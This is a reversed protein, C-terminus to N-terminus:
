FQGPGPPTSGNSRAASGSSGRGPSNTASSRASARARARCKAVAERLTKVTEDVAEKSALAIQFTQVEASSFATKRRLKDEEARGSSSPDPSDEGDILHRPKAITILVTNGLGATVFPKSPTDEIALLPHMLVLDKTGFGVKNKLVLYDDWEVAITVDFKGMKGQCIRQKNRNEKPLDIEGKAVSAKAFAFEKKLTTQIQQRAVIREIIPPPPERRPAIPPVHIVKKREELTQTFPLLQVQPVVPLRPARPQSHSPAPPPLTAPPPPVPETPRLTSTSADPPLTGGNMSHISVEAHSQAPSDSISASAEFGGGVVVPDLIVSKPNPMRAGSTDGEHVSRDMPTGSGSGMQVINQYKSSKADAAVLWGPKRETSQSLISHRDRRLSSEQKVLSATAEALATVPPVPILQAMQVTTESLGLPYKGAGCSVFLTPVNTPFGSVGDASPLTWVADDPEIVIPVEALGCSPGRLLGSSSSSDSSGEKSDTLRSSQGNPAEEPPPPAAPSAEAAADNLGQLLSRDAATPTDGGDRGVAVRSTSRTTSGSADLREESRTRHQHSLPSEDEPPPPTPTPQHEDQPPSHPVLISPEPLQQWYAEEVGHNDHVIAELRELSELDQLAAFRDKLKCYWSDGDSQVLEQVSSFQASTSVKLRERLASFSEETETKVTMMCGADWDSVQVTTRPAGGNAPSFTNEAGRHLIRDLDATIAELVKTKDQLHIIHCIIHNQPHSWVVTLTKTAGRKGSQRLRLRDRASTGAGGVPSKDGDVSVPTSGAVSQPSAARESDVTLTPSAAPTPSQQESVTAAPLAAPRADELKPHPAHGQHHQGPVENTEALKAEEKKANVPEEETPRRSGTEPQLVPADEFVSTPQQISIVMNNLSDDIIRRDGEDGDEQDPPNRIPSCQASLLASTMATTSQELAPTPAHVIPPQPQPPQESQVASSDATSTRPDSKKDSLEETHLIRMEADGDKSPTQQVSEQISNRSNENRSTEQPQPSPPRRPATPVPPIVAPSEAQFSETVSNRRGRSSTNQHVVFTTDSSPDFKSTNERPPSRARSRDQAL